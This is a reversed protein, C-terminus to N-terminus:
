ERNSRSFFPELFPFDDGKCKQLSTTSVLKEQAAINFENKLEGAEFLLLKGTDTGVIVREESVWAHCLYNQPEMKQFNFTKLNGESYRFNKFIGNGVVCLQTNDQPNFSM